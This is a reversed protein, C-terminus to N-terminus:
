LPHEVCDSRSVKDVVLDSDEILQEYNCVVLSTSSSSSYHQDVSSAREGGGLTKAMFLVIRMDHFTRPSLSCALCSMTRVSVLSM